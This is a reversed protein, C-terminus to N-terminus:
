PGVSPGDTPPLDSDAVFLVEEYRYGLGIFINWSSFSRKRTNTGTFDVAYIGPGTGKLLTGERYGMGSGIPLANDGLSATKIIDWSYGYSFLVGPNPFSHISGNQVLYVGSGTGKRILTGDPHAGNIDSIVSSTIPPLESDSVTLVDKLSYGLGSFTDWSNFGHKQYVGDSNEIVYIGPGTGKLLTGERFKLTSGDLLTLAIDPSTAPRVDSWEFGNSILVKESPVSMKGGDINYRVGNSSSPRVMTGDPHAVNPLGTQTSGFNFTNEFLNVFSQNGSFHPTYRYLAATAGSDMHVSEGDITTYGDYYIASCSGCRKLTGQTMPGSYGLLPDDSNDWGPKQVNWSTNGLSRQQGFKLSWTARIVQKSFGESSARCYGPCDYGTAITICGGAYSCAYTCTQSSGGITCTFTKGAQPSSAFPWNPNPDNHHCGASGTVLSQEKQLTTLIVQPNLDYAQAAHYIITGASVNSGFLFGQSPNYGTPDPSTFGNNTSICSGPYSNLLNDIQSATMTNSSDFVYDSMVFNKTFARTPTPNIALVAAITLVIILLCFKSIHNKM